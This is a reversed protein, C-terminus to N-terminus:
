MTRVAGAVLLMGILVPQHLMYYSLSWRGLVALPKLSHPLALLLWQPRHDLMAQGAAVGWWMVGLWPLLPVYDETFPKRSVLGLWNLAYGNFWPTWEAAPGALLWAACWPAAMALTGALWLWGRWGASCRAIVLMVAMGHLVGFHIFSRPFMLYSGASVLLACAAIQAWRRGFRRWGLGQRWALSQGLGACFLFMSVIATRQLTWFPDTRFDQPWYGFHSLDFCFHFVTMWVMAAGRLADVADMRVRAQSRSPESFARLTAM